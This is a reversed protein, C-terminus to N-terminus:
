IGIHLVFSKLVRDFVAIEEEFVENSRIRTSFLMSLRIIM